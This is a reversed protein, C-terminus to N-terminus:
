VDTKPTLFCPKLVGTMKGRTVVKGHGFSAVVRRAHGRWSSADIDVVFNGM